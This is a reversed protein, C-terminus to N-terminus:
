LIGKVIYNNKFAMWRGVGVGLMGLFIEPVDSVGSPLNTTNTAALVDNIYFKIDTGNDWVFRYNNNNTLTVGGSVDTRTQTTGDANSAYLTGDEIFFGIHRDTSTANPQVTTGWSSNYGIFADQTTAAETKMEIVFEMDLDWTSVEGTVGFSVSTLTCSNAAASDLQTELIRRTINGANPTETLGDNYNGTFAYTEYNTNFRTEADSVGTAGITSGDQLTLSAATLAGAATWALGTASGFWGSGDNLIQVRQVPGADYAKIGTSDLVVRAGSAATQIIGGTATLVGAQTITATPVGTPGATFATNGSSVITTNGGATATLSDSSITWGALLIQTDSMEFLPTSGDDAYGKIGYVGASLYGIEVRKETNEYVTIGENGSALVLGDSPSATPTGSALSYIYGDAIVWGGMAGSDATVTGTITISGASMLISDTAGGLLFKPVGADIGLVFGNSTDSFDTKGARFYLNGATEFTAFLDNEGITWYNASGGFRGKGAYVDGVFQQRAFSDDTRLSLAQEKEFQIDVNPIKPLNIEEEAM